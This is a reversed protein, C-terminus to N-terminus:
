VGQGAVALTQPQFGTYSFTLSADPSVTLEYKGDFDTITGNSTGVELINVGILPAGDTATVTGSVRHQAQLTSTGLLFLFIGWFSRKM